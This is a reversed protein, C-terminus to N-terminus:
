PCLQFQRTSIYLTVCLCVYLSPHKCIGPANGYPWDNVLIKTDAIYTITLKLNTKQKDLRFDCAASIHLKCIPILAFRQLCISNPERSGPRDM